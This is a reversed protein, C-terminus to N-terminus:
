QPMSKSRFGANVLEFLIGQTKAIDERRGGSAEMIREIM